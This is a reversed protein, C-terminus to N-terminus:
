TYKQGGFLIKALATLCVLAFYNAMLFVAPGTIRVGAMKYHLPSRIFVQSLFIQEDVSFKTLAIESTMFTKEWHANLSAMPALFGIQHTPPPRTPYLRACLLHGPRRVGVRLSRVCLIPSLFIIVVFFTVVTDSSLLSYLAAAQVIVNMYFGPLVLREFHSATFDMSRQVSAYM